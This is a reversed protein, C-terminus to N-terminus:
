KKTAPLEPKGLRWKRLAPIHRFANPAIASLAKDEAPIKGQLAKLRARLAPQRQIRAQQQKGQLAARERIRKLFTGTLSSQLAKATDQEFGTYTMDSARKNLFERELRDTEDSRFIEANGTAETGDAGTFVVRSPQDASLHIGPRFKACLALMGPPPTHAEKQMPLHETWHGYPKSM